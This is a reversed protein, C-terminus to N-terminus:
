SGSEKRRLADYCATQATSTSGYISALCPIGTGMGKLPNSWKERGDQPDLGDTYGDV